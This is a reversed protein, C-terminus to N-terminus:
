QLERERKRWERDLWFTGVPVLAAAFAVGVRFLSYRLAGAAVVVAVLYAIFLAGHIWGVVTVMQPMAFFYKLPMAVLLLVFFSIGETIGTIRLMRVKYFDMM